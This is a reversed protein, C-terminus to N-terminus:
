LIFKHNLGVFDPFADSAKGTLYDSFVATLYHPFHCESFLCQLRDLEKYMKKNHAQAMINAFIM